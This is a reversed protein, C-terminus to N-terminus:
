ARRRKPVSFVRRKEVATLLDHIDYLPVLCARANIARFRMRAVIAPIMADTHKGM